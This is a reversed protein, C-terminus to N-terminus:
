DNALLRNIADQLEHKRIPKSIYDNMGASLCAERDGQMAQATLAVIPIPNATKGEAKRIMKTAEIGDLEPMLVDMLILDFTVPARRWCDVAEEGNNAITVQHGWKELMAIALKQNVKGDEAVLIRLSRPPQNQTADAAPMAADTQDRSVTTASIDGIDFQALFHFRSGRPTNNECWIRGQM